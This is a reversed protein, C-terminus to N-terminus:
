KHLYQNVIALIEDDAKGLVEFSVAGFTSIDSSTEVGIVPKVMQRDILRATVGSTGTVDNVYYGPVFLSTVPVVIGAERNVSVIFNGNTSNALCVYEYDKGDKVFANYRAIQEAYGLVVPEGNSGTVVLSSNNPIVFRNTKVSEVIQKQLFEEVNIKVYPIKEGCCVEYDGSIEDEAYVKIDGDLAIGDEFHLKTGEVFEYDGITYLPVIIDPIGGERVALAELALEPGFITHFSGEQGDAKMSACRAANLVEKAFDGISAINIGQMVLSTWIISRAAAAYDPKLVKIMEPNFTNFFSYSTALKQLEPIVSEAAPRTITPEAQAFALCNTFFTELMEKAKDLMKNKLIFSDDGCVWVPAGCDNGDEDKPQYVGSVAHTASFTNTQRDWTLSVANVGVTGKAYCSRLAMGFSRFPCFVIEGTKAADIVRGIVSSMVAILDQIFNMLQEINAIYKKKCMNYWSRVSQIGNEDKEPEGTITVSKGSFVRETYATRGARLAVPCGFIILDSNYPDKGDRLKNYKPNYNWITKCFELFNDDNLSGNLISGFIGVYNLMLVVAIGVQLNGNDSFNSLSIASNLTEIIINPNNDFLAKVEAMVKQIEEKSLKVYQNARVVKEVEESTTLARKGTEWYNSMIVYKGDASFSGYEIAQQPIKLLMAVIRQDTVCTYADGDSDSGGHRKAFDPDHTPFVAFRGKINRYYSILFERQDEDIKGDRYAKDIRELIVKLSLDYLLSFESEGAKPHRFIATLVKELVDEVNGSFMENKAILSEGTMLLMPDCDGIAHFGGVKVGFGNIIKNVSDVLDAFAKERFRRNKLFTEPSIAKVLDAVYGHINKFAQYKLADKGDLLKSLMGYLNEAFIGSILEEGVVEKGDKDVYKGRPLISVLIQNSLAVEYRETPPFTMLNLDADEDLNMHAKLTNEDVFVDVDELKDAGIIFLKNRNIPDKFDVPNKKMEERTVYIIEVNNLKAWSELIVKMHKGNLLAALGKITGIRCQVLHLKEILNENDFGEGLMDKTIRVPVNTNMFLLGDFAAHGKIRLEGTYVAFSKVVKDYLVSSTFPLTRREFLKSGKKYPMPRVLEKVMYDWAGHSAENMIKNYDHQFAALGEGSKMKLFLTQHSRTGSVAREFVFFIDAKGNSFYEEIQAQTYSMPVVFSGLKNDFKSQIPIYMGQEQMLFLPEHTKDIWLRIMFGRKALLSIRNISDAGDDFRDELDSSVVIVDDISDNILNVVYDNKSKTVLLNLGSVLERKKIVETIFGSLELSDKLFDIGGKSTINILQVAVAPKKELWHKLQRKPISRKLSKPINHM